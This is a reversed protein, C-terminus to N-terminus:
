PPRLKNHRDSSERLLSLGMFFFARDYYTTTEDGCCPSVVVKKELEGQRFGHKPYKNTIGKPMELFLADVMKWSVALLIIVRM